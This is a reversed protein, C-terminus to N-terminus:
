HDSASPFSQDFCLLFLVGAPLITGNRARGEHGVVMIRPLGLFHEGRGEMSLFFYCNGNKAGRRPGERVFPLLLQREGHGETSSFFNCNCNGNM